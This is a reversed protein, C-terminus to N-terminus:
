EEMNKRFHEEMQELTWHVEMNRYLEIWRWAKDIVIKSADAFYADDIAKQEKAGQIYGEAFVSDGQRFQVAYEWARQEISEM